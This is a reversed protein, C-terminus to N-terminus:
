TALERGFLRRLEPLFINSHAAESFSQFHPNQLFVAMKTISKEFSSHTNKEVIEVLSLHAPIRCYDVAAVHM